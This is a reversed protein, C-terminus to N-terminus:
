TSRPTPSCARARRWGRPWGSSTRTPRAPFGSGTTHLFGTTTHVSVGDPTIAQVLPEAASNVSPLLMGIRARWGYM